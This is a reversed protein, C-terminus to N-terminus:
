EVIFTGNMLEPHVDCRFFYDGPESPATFEYTRTVGPGSFVEGTFIPQEAADTLYVSFGHPIPDRNELTVRVTAGASVTLEDTDFATDEAVLTLEVVAPQSAQASPAATPEGGGSAEPALTAAAQTPPAPTAPPGLEVPAPIADAAGPQDAQGSEVFRPIVNGAPPELPQAREAGAPTSEAGAPGATGDEAEAVRPPPSTDPVPAFTWDNSASDSACAGAVMAVLLGLAVFGAPRNTGTRRSHPGM